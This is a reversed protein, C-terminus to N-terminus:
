QSQIADIVSEAAVPPTIQGRLIQDVGTFLSPGISSLLFNSPRPRAASMVEAAFAASSEPPWLAVASLRTPLYGAQLSWASLNEPATLWNFLALALPQRSVDTRGLAYYWSEALALRNGDRTPIVTADTNVVLDRESLYIRASTVALAAQLEKYGVWADFDSAAELSRSSILGAKRAEAYYNFVEQLASSEMAPNGNEDTLQGGLAIYQHLSALAQQDMAPFLYLGDGQLVDAWTAPPSAYLATSYVLVQADSAFPLGLLDGEIRAEELLPSYYDGITESPFLEDLPLILDERAITRLTPLDVVILDPLAGPAAVSATRMSDVIGGDGSISKVRVDVQVGPNNESFADLQALFLKGASTALDPAFDPPLWLKLTTPETVAIETDGVVPAAAVSTTALLNPISTAPVTATQFAEPSPSPVTCAAVLLGLFLSWRRFM